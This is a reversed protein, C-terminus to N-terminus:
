MCGPIPDLDIPGTTVEGEYRAKVVVKGAGAFTVTGKVKVLVGGGEEDLKLTITVDPDTPEGPLEGTGDQAIMTALDVFAQAGHEDLAVETKPRKGAQTAKTLVEGGLDACAGHILLSARAGGMILAVDSPTKLHFGRGKARLTGHLTGFTGTEPQGPECFAPDIECPDPDPDPDVPCDAPHEICPDVPPDEPDELDCLPSDPNKECFDAPPKAAAPPGPFTWYLFAALFLAARARM